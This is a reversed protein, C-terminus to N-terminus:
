VLEGYWLFFCHFLGSFFVLQLYDSLLCLQTYQKVLPAHVPSLETPLLAEHWRRM